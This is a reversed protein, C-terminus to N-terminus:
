GKKPRSQLHLDVATVSCFPVFIAIGVLNAVSFALFLRPWQDRDVDGGGTGLIWAAFMPAIWSGGTAMTNGVGTVLGSHYKSVDLYNAGWGLGQLTAFGQVGCMCLMAQAPTSAFSLGWMGAAALLYSASAFLRRSMLASLSGTRQLRRGLNASAFSVLLGLVEPVLMFM